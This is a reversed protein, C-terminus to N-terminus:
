WARMAPGAGRASSDQVAAYYEVIQLRTPPIPDEEAGTASRSAQWPGAVSCMMTMDDDDESNTAATRRSETYSEVSVVSRAM